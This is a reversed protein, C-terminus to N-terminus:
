SQLWEVEIQLDPHAAVDIQWVEFEDRFDLKAETQQVDNLLVSAVEYVTGQQFVGLTDIASM